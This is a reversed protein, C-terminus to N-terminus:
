VFGLTVCAGEVAFRDGKRGSSPKPKTGSLRTLTVIAHSAPWYSARKQAALLILAIGSVSIGGAIAPPNKNYGFSVRNAHNEPYLLVFSM